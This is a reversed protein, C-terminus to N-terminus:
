PTLPGELPLPGTVAKQRILLYIYMYYHVPVSHMNHFECANSILNLFM